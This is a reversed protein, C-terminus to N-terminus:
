VVIQSLLQTFYAPAKLLRSGYWSFLEGDALIIEANPCIRKFAEIHKERFPFPESSLLILGPNASKLQEKSIEPYRNLSSFVNSLNCYSLMSHIFTDSGAAMMPNYWIFYAASKSNTNQTKHQSFLTRIKTVLNTAEEAKGTINGVESIMQLADNINRVDSMWVPFHKTLEEVQSQENEEKNGIILDPNLSKILELNLKKTGGIRTKTRFWEEPHVCFKTIGIVEERLGLDYLLETQSPVISIIRQPVSHLEVKRHMQDTFVPMAYLYKAIPITKSSQGKGL